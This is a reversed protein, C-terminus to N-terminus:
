ETTKEVRIEFITALYLVCHIKKYSVGKLDKATKVIQENRGNAM